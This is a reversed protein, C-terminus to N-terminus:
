QKACRLVALDQDFEGSYGYKKKTFEICEEQSMPFKSRCAERVMYVAAPNQADKINALVCDDYNNPGFLNWAQAQSVNNLLLISAVWLLKKM